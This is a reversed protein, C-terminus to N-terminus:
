NMQAPKAARPLTSPAEAGVTAGKGEQSSPVRM